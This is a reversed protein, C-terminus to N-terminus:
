LCVYCIIFMMFLILLIYYVSKDTTKLSKFFAELSFPKVHDVPFHRFYRCPVSGNRFISLFIDFITVPSLAVKKLISLRCQPGGM